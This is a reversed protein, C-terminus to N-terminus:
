VYYYWVPNKSSSYLPVSFATDPVCCKNCIPRLLIGTHSYGSTLSFSQQSKSGTWLQKERKYGWTHEGLIESRSEPDFVTSWPQLINESLRMVVQVPTTIQAHISAAFVCHYCGETTLKKLSTLMMRKLSVDLKCKNKQRWKRLFFFTSAMEDSPWNTDVRTPSLYCWVWMSRLISRFIPM